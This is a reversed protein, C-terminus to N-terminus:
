SRGELSPCKQRVNKIFYMINTLDGSHTDWLLCIGHLQEKKYHLIEYPKRQVYEVSRGHAWDFAFTTHTESDSWIMIRKGHLKGNILTYKVRPTNRRVILYRCIEQGCFQGEQLFYDCLPHNHTIQM